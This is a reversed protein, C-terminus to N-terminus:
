HVLEVWHTKGWLKIQLAYVGQGYNKFEKLSIKNIINAQLEEKRHHLQKGWINYLTLEIPTKQANEVYVHVNNNVIRKPHDLLGSQHIFISSDSLTLYAQLFNPIGKGLSSDAHLLHASNVIASKLKKNSVTPFAQKLTAVMGTLVPCAYSTGDGYGVDYTIMSAYATGEGLAAVDPKIRGDYTPGWSSFTARSSDRQVAAVTLVEVADAPAALYHWDKHGDNGAANVILIGKASAINAGQTILTSKGDLDKYQYSMSADRFRTYGMSSNVIDIGVSDAHELALVWYFEEARFEGRIDETKFLYYYADPATGIMLYPQKAAMISLVNTGHTSSEYVFDDGEVFDHTGLIRDDLFLSDFVTMRYANRFGGDVVGVHVEKGTFGLQHLKEGGLMELQTKALGYPSVQHKSSDIAPRKHYIKAKKAKRFKGLPQISKVFPLAEIQKLISKSETHIALANFWKSKGQIPALAEITKIYSMSIPIDLMDISVGQTARRELARPSLYEQPSFLSFPSNKKDTLKVLHLDYLHKDTDSQAFTFTSVVLLFFCHLTNM